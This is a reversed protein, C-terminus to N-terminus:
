AEIAELVERAFREMQFPGSVPDFGRRVLVANAAPIVMVYQGRNGAASFTGEPLGNKPGYLWVQAGYGIGESAPPQAPAPTTMYKVWGAPLVRQNLWVGDNLLLLGLRALDRATTWIQSSLIFTGGWDTEATTHRMGLPLFLRDHPFALY